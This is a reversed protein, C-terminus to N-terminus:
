DREYLTIIEDENRTNTQKHKQNTNHQRLLKTNHQSKQKSLTETKFENTKIPAM